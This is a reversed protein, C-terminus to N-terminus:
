SIKFKLIVKTGFSKDNNKIDQINIFINNKDLSNIIKIRENVITTSWSKYSHVRNKALSASAERGIGNDEVIVVLYDDEITYTIMLKKDGSKPILGHLIANEVFPQIFMGPMKINEIDINEDKILSFDLEDNLQLNNLLLYNNIYEIEEKLSVLELKSMDITSRLLRSFAVFYKNVELEGKLIMISQMNNLINFVFHPNMQAKLASSKLEMIEKEREFNRKQKRTKRRFEYVIFCASLFIMLFIFLPTKFFIQHVHIPIKIENLTEFGEFDKGKVRLIYDGAPLGYLKVVASQGINIWDTTLGEVKYYYTNKEHYFIDNMAFEASFFNKDYTLEITEKNLSLYEKIIKNQKESYYECASLYIKYGKKQYGIREPNFETIGNLGGFYFTSDNKKYLSRINFENDSLGNEDYFNNFMKTKKNLTSLGYYTSFWMANKAELIGCVTNNSIGKSQDYVTIKRTTPNLLIVGTNNTGIWLNENDDKYIILVTRDNFFSNVTSYNVFGKGRKKFLLGKDTGLWLDGNKTKQIDYIIYDDLVINQDKYKSIIGSKKDFVYLGKDSGMWLSDASKPKIFSSHFKEKGKYRFDKIKQTKIDISKIFVDEGTAWLISDKDVFLSNYYNNKYNPDYIKKIIKKSSNLKFLGAYSGVYLNNEKDSVIGRTSVQINKFQLYKNFKGNGTKLMFVDNYTSFWLIDNSDSTLFNNNVKKKFTITDLTVIHNKDSDVENIYIKNEDVTFIKSNKYYFNNFPYNFMQIGLEKIYSYKYPKDNIYYTGSSNKAFIKGNDAFQFDQNIAKDFSSSDGFLHMGNDDIIFLKTFSKALISGNDLEKIAMVTGADTDPLLSSKFKKQKYNTDFKIIYNKAISVWVNGKKDELIGMQKFERYGDLLNWSIYNVKFTKPNIIYAGSLCIAWINNNKDQLWSYVFPTSITVKKKNKDNFSYEIKNKGDYRYFVGKTNVAYWVFGENDIFPSSTILYTNLEDRVPIDKLTYNQGYFCASLLM